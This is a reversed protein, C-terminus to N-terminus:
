IESCQKLSQLVERMKDGDTAIYGITDVGWDIDGMVKYATGASTTQSVPYYCRIMHDASIAKAAVCLAVAVGVFALFEMWQDGRAGIIGIVFDKM